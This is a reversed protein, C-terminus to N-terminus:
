VVSSSKRRSLYQKKENVVIFRRKEASYHTFNFHLWQSSWPSLRLSQSL